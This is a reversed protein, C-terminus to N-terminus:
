GEGAVSEARHALIAAAHRLYGAIAAQEAPVFTAALEDLAVFLEALPALTDRVGSDTVVVAVRRRDTTDPKRRVHGAQELRDLLQTMSGSSIGLRTAMATPGVPEDADMLHGMATYDLLGMSLHAALARDLDAAARQFARLAWSVEGVDVRTREVREVEEPAPRAPVARREPHAAM